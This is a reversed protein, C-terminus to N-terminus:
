NCQLPIVCRAGARPMEAGFMRAFAEAASMMEEQSMGGDGGGQEFASHGRQDYMARKSDDSLIEYANQIDTFKAASNPDDKNTDPHYKKALKYYSKKVEDKSAGRPVELVEYLDRKADALVPSTTHLQRASATHACCSGTCKHAASPRKTRRDHSCCAASSSVRRVESVFAVHGRRIGPSGAWPHVTTTPSTQSHPQSSRPVM